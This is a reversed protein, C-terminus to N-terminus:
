LRNEALRAEAPIVPLDLLISRELMDGRSAVKEIGNFIEPRCAVITQEESISYLQRCAFGSGLSLRCLGDSM